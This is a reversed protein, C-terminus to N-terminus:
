SCVKYATGGIYIVVCKRQPRRKASRFDAGRMEAIQFATATALYKGSNKRLPQVEKRSLRKAPKGNEDTIKLRGTAIDIRLQAQKAMRTGQECFHVARQEACKILRV